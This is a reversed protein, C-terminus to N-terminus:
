CCSHRPALITFVSQIVEPSTHQLSFSAQPAQSYQRYQRGTGIFVLSLRIHLMIPTSVPDLFGIQLACSISNVYLKRTNQM